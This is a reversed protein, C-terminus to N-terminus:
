IIIFGHIFYMKMGQTPGQFVSCNLMWSCTLRRILHIVCHLGYAPDLIIKETSLECSKLYRLTWLDMIAAYTIVPMRGSGKGPQEVGACIWVPSVCDAVHPACPPCM